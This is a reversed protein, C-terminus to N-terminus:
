INVWLISANCRPHCVFVHLPTAQKFNTTNINIKMIETIGKIINIKGIGAAVFIEKKWAVFNNIKYEDMIIKTRQLKQKDFSEWCIIRIVEGFIRKKRKENNEIIEFIQEIVEKEEKKNIVWAIYRATQFNSQLHYNIFDMNVNCNFKRKYYLAYIMEESKYTKMNELIYIMSFNNGIPLIGRSCNMMQNEVPGDKRFLKIIEMNDNNENNYHVAHQFIENNDDNIKFQLLRNIINRYGGILALKLAFSFYKKAGFSLLEEFIQFNGSLAAWGLPSNNPNGDPSIKYKQICERVTELDGAISALVM